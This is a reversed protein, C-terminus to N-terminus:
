DQSQRLLDLVVDVVVDDTTTVHIMARLRATVEIGDDLRALELHRKMDRNATMSIRVPWKHPKDQEAPMARAPKVREPAPALRGLQAYIEDVVEFQGQSVLDDLAQLAVARDERNAGCNRREPARRDQAKRWPVLLWSRDL